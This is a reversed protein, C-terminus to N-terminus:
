HQLPCLFMPSFELLMDLPAVRTNRGVLLVVFLDMSGDLVLLGKVADAITAATPSELCNLFAAWNLAQSPSAGFCFELPPLVLRPLM